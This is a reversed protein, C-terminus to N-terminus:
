GRRKKTLVTELPVYDEQKAEKREKTLEDLEEKTIEEVPVMRKELADVRARLAELERGLKEVESVM